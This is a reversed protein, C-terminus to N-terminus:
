VGLSVGIVLSLIAATFAIGLSVQGAYLLRIFHDRGLDDTGLLHGPSGVPLFTKDANTRTYDVHLIQEEIFPAFIALLALIIVVAIAALTLHDRRLRRLALTSLSEGVKQSEETTIKVVSTQAAM